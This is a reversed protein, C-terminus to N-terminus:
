KTFTRKWPAASALARSCRAAQASGGATHRHLIPECGHCPQHTHTGGEGCTNQTRSLATYRSNCSSWSSTQRACLWWARTIMFAPLCMSGTAGGPLVVTNVQTQSIMAKWSWGSPSPEATINGAFLSGVVQNSLPGQLMTALALTIRLAHHSGAAAAAEHMRLGCCAPCCSCSGQRCLLSARQWLQQQAQQCSQEGPWDTCRQWHQPREGPAPRTLAPWHAREHV